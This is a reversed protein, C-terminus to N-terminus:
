DRQKQRLSWSDRLFICSYIYMYVYAGRSTLEGAALQLLLGQLEERQARSLKLEMERVIAVRVDCDRERASM